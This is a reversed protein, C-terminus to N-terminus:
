SGGALETAACIPNGDGTCAMEFRTIDVNDFDDVDDYGLETLKDLHQPIKLEELLDLLDPPPCYEEMELNRLDMAHATAAGAIASM